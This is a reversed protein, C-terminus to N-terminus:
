FLVSFSIYVKDYKSLTHFQYEGKIAVPFVPRYTYGLILSSDKEKLNELNSKYSEVRMVPMHQSTIKYLVQIYGIYELTTKNSSYQQGVEAMFKYKDDEYASSFLYYYLDRNEKYDSAIAHFYGINAKFSIDEKYLTMGLAYHEDININNYNGDIEKNNQIICDVKYESSNFFSATINLGTTFKPYLIYNLMPNSSTDRLVNIPTLNWYGIPSNFKGVRLTATENLMYDFYLREIHLHDNLISDSDNSDWVYTYYDKYEIEALYSFKEYSGYALFAIDDVRFQNKSDDTNYQYDTSFYGGVYLPLSGVQVGSGLLYEKEAATAVFTFILLLNLLKLM